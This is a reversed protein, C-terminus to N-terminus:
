DNTIQGADLSKKRAQEPTHQALVPLLENPVYVKYAKSERTARRLQKKLLIIDSRLEAILADKSLNISTESKPSDPFFDVPLAGNANVIYHAM